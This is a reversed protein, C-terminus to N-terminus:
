SEPFTWFHSKRLQFRWLSLLQGFITKTFIKNM